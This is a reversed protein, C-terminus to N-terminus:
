QPAGIFQLAIWGILLTVFPALALGVMRKWAEEKYQDKLESASQTLMGIVLAIGIAYPMTLPELGFYPCMFWGWLITLVWSRLLIIPVVLIILGVVVGIVAIFAVM